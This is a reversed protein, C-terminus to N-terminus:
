PDDQSQRIRHAVGLGLVLSAVGFVIAFRWDGQVAAWIAVAVGVLVGLLHLRARRDLRV